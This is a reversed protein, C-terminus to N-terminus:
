PLHREIDRKLIAIQGFEAGSKPLTLASRQLSFGFEALIDDPEHTMEFYNRFIYSKGPELISAKVM